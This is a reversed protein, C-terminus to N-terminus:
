KRAGLSGGVETGEMCVSLWGGSGMARVPAGWTVASPRHGRGHSRQLGVWRGGVVPAQVGEATM